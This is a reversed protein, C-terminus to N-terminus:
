DPKHSFDTLWDMNHASLEQASYFGFSDTRQIPNKKYLDILKTENHFM